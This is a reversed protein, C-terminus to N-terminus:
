QITFLKTILCLQSFTSCEYICRVGTVHYSHMSVCLLVTDCVTVCPNCACVAIQLSQLMNTLLLQIVIIHIFTYTVPKNLVLSCFAQSQSFYGSYTENVTEAAKNSVQGKSFNQCM